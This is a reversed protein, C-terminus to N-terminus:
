FGQFLMDLAETITNDHARLTGTRAGFDSVPMAALYQTVMLHQRGEIEFAPNLRRAPLPAGEPLMLPVVVRINLDDLLDNQVDLLYGAGSRNKFVEYRAM